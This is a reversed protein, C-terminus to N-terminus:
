RPSKQVLRRNIAVFDGPQCDMHIRRLSLLSLPSWRGGKQGDYNWDKGNILWKPRIERELLKIAGEADKLQVKLLLMEWSRGFHAEKMMRQHHHM